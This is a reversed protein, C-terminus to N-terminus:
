RSSLIELSQKAAAVIKGLNNVVDIKGKSGSRYYHAPTMKTM